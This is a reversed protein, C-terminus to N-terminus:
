MMMKIKNMTLIKKWLRMLKQSFQNTLKEHMTSVETDFNIYEDLTIKHDVQDGFREKLFSLDTGLTQVSDEEIDDLGAFPEDEDNLVKEKEKQFNVLWKSATPLHRKRSLM